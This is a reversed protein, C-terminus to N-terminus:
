DLDRLAEAAEDREMRAALPASAPDSEALLQRLEDADMEELADAATGPEVLDPLEHRERRGLDELLDALEAPRLTGLAGRHRALRADVQGAGPGFSHVSAWDIVSEPTPTRRRAPGLRWLLSRFGVDVGVLRVVGNVTALHPDAVRVM